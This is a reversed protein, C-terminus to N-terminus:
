IWRDELLRVAQISTTPGCIRGGRRENFAFGTAPNGDQPYSTEGRTYDYAGLEFSSVENGWSEAERDRTAVEHWQGDSLLVESVKEVDIALSM